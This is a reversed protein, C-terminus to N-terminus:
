YAEEFPSSHTSGLDLTTVKGVLVSRQHMFPAENM